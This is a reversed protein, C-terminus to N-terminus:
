GKKDEVYVNENNDKHYMYAWLSFGGGFFTILVTLVVGGAIDGRTFSSVALLTFLSLIFVIILVGGVIVTTLLKDIM